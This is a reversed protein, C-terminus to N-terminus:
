ADHFAALTYLVDRDTAVQMVLQEQEMRKLEDWEQVLLRRFRIEGANAQMQALISRRFQQADFKTKFEESM